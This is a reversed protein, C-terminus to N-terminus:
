MSNKVVSKENKKRIFQSIVHNVFMHIDEVVGYNNSPIVLSLDSCNYMRGKKDGIISIVTAQNARAYRFARVVNESDGSVSLGIVFDGPSLLNKLPELFTNEYGVDNGLASMLSHNDALSIMRLRKEGDVNIGKGFDCVWHSASAASGGNGILFVQKNEKRAEEIKSAITEIVEVDLSKLADIYENLYHDYHSRFM